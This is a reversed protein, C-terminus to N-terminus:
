VCEKANYFFGTYNGYSYVNDINEALIIVDKCYSNDFSKKGKIDFTSSIILNDFPEMKLKRYQYLREVLIYYHYLLLSKKGESLTYITRTEGYKQHQKVESADENKILNDFYKQGKQIEGNFGIVM